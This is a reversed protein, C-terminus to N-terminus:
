GTEHRRATRHCHHSLAVGRSHRGFLDPLECSLVGSTVNLPQGRLRPALAAADRGNKSLSRRRRRDCPRGVALRRRALSMTIPVCPRAAAGARCPPPAPPARVAEQGTSVTPPRTRQDPRSAPWAFGLAGLRSDKFIGLRSCVSSEHGLGGTVVRHIHEVRDCPCAGVVDLGQILVVAAIRIRDVLPPDEHEGTVFPTAWWDYGAAVGAPRGGGVQDM